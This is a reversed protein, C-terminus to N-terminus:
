AAKLHGVEQPEAPQHPGSAPVPRDAAFAALWQEVAAIVSDPTSTGATVGATQCDIFWEPRLDGATQVHHVRACYRSCTQVLEHTNNSLAGGIVM